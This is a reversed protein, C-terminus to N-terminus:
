TAQHVQSLDGEANSIDTNAQSIADEAAEQAREAEELLQIVRKATDLIEDADNRCLLILFTYKSDYYKEM